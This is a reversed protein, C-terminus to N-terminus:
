LQAIRKVLKTFESRDIGSQAGEKPEESGDDEEFLNFVKEFAKDNWADARPAGGKGEDATAKNAM